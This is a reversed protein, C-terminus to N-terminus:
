KRKTNIIWAFSFLVLFTQLILVLQAQLLKSATPTHFWTLATIITLVGIPLSLFLLSSPIDNLLMRSDKTSRTVVFGLVIGGLAILAISCQMLASMYEVPYQM